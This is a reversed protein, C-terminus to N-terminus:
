QLPDFRHNHPRDAKVLPCSQGLPGSSTSLQVAIPDCPRRRDGTSYQSDLGVLDILELDPPGAGPTRLAERLRPPSLHVSHQYDVCSSTTIRVTVVSAISLWPISALSTVLFSLFLTPCPILSFFLWFLNVPPFGHAHRPHFTDQSLFLWGSLCPLSVFSHPHLPEPRQTHVICPLFPDLPSLCSPSPSHRPPVPIQSAHTAPCSPHRGPGSIALLLL